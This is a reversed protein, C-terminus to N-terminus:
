ADLEYSLWSSKEAGIGDYLRQAVVNDPATEWVLKAAGRDACLQLCRAILARGTGGGRSGPAVYLDNLVGVRAAYLTQWTWYITAFGVPTEDEDRALLQIGEDPDDLLAQALTRLAEDGPDVRYFDCYARMLPALEDLDARTVAAITLPM